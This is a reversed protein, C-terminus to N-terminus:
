VEIPFKVKYVIWLAVPVTVSFYWYYRPIDIHISGQPDSGPPQEPPILCKREINLGSNAIGRLGEPIQFQEQHLREVEEYMIKQHWKKKKRKIVVRKECVFELIVREALSRGRLRQQFRFDIEDGLLFQSNRTFIQAEGVCGLIILYHILYGLPILALLGCVYTHYIAASDYPPEAVLFYHGLTPGVIITAVAIVLISMKLKDSNRLCALLEYWDSDDVKRLNLERFCVGFYYKWLLLALIWCPVSWLIPGYAELFLYKNLLFSDSLEAPNYFATVTKGKPYERVVSTAWDRGTHSKFIAVSNSKYTQGNLVYTYEISPRYLHETRRRTESKTHKVYSSLVTATVPKFHTIKYHQKVAGNFGLGFFVAGLGLSMLICITIIPKLKKM